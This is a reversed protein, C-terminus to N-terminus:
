TTSALVTHASKAECTRFHGARQITGLPWVTDYHALILAPKRAQDMHDVGFFDCGLRHRIIIHDGGLANKSSRPDEEDAVVTRM